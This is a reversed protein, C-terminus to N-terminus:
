ETVYLCGYAMESCNDDVAKDWDEVVGIIATEVANEVNYATCVGIGLASLASIKEPNEENKINDLFYYLYDHWIDSGSNNTYIPKEQHLDCSEGAELGEFVFLVGDTIVAFYAFDKETENSVTGAIGTQEIGVGFYNILGSSRGTKGGAYFFSDEFNSSPRIGFSLTDGEKVIHHYYTDDNDYAYQENMLAGTYLYGDSLKLAWEKKSADYCYLYSATERGKNLNETTVSYVRTNVVEFGRGVFFTLVIGLLAVVPVAGWYLERKKVIRLIIYLIPGVFIVYAIVLVKLVGFNLPSNTNGLLRLMRRAINYNYYYQYKTPNYRRASETSITDLMVMVFHEQEVNVFFESGMSGLETLSFPLVGIAGDGWASTRAHNMYQENYSLRSNERLEATTLMNMNVFETDYYPYSTEEPTSVSVCEMGLYGDKFGALTDEAYAGTGIVLMGGNYNWEEILQLEEETLVGTNYTDIVLFDLAALENELNDQTIEVLKIPYDDGSYHLQQGGMDLYTLAAYDDSLIGMVLYDDEDTLFRKFLKDLVVEGQKNLLTVTITGDTDEISNLPVRVVFQKTSGAPLSLVTDFATPNHYNENVIVRVTGEWDEATNEINLQITYTEENTQLKTAEIKFSNDKAWVAVDMDCWLLIGALLYLAICVPLRRGRKLRERM